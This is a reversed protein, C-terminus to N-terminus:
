LQKEWLKNGTAMDVCIMQLQAIMVFKGEHIDAWRYDFDPDGEEFVGAGEAKDPDFYFSTLDLHWREVFKRPKTMDVCTLIARSTDSVTTASYILTSYSKDNLAYDDNDFDSSTNEIERDIEELDRKFHYVENQLNREEATLKDWGPNDNGVFVPHAAYLSDQHAEIKARDSKLAAIQNQQRIYGSYESCDIFYEPKLFPLDATTDEYKWCMRKRDDDGFFSVYEDKSFHASSNLYDPSWDIDPMSAETETLSDNAPNFYYHLGQMDTLMIKGNSFEYGYYQQINMWEPRSFNFKSLSTLESEKKVVEMTKPDRSHLGLEKDVSYCWVQEDAFGLIKCGEDIADGIEVRGLMAGTSLDYSTLRAENYGSITTMGGGSSKSTAQFILEQTIIYSADKGSYIFSQSVNDARDNMVDKHFCSSLSCYATLLACYATFRVIRFNKIM